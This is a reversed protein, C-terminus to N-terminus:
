DTSARDAAPKAAADLGPNQSGPPTGSCAGGPKKARTLELPLAPTGETEGGSSNM